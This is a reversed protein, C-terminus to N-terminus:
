EDTKVTKRAEVACRVGKSLYTKVDRFGAKRLFGELQQPTYVTMGACRDSWMKAKQPDCMEVAILVRGGDKLVRFIETMGKVPDQWFYVSEFSLVVDYSDNEYPLDAVDGQRVESRSSFKCVVDRSKCVSTESIDAGDVVCHPFRKLIRAMNGGGGCGVDLIKEGDRFAFCSMAWKSFSAHGVNMAGVVLRGFKGEPNKCNQLFKKLM